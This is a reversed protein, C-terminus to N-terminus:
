TTLFGNCTRDHFNYKISEKCLTVFLHKQSNRLQQKHGSIVGQRVKVQKCYIQIAEMEFPSPLLCNLLSSYRICDFPEVPM